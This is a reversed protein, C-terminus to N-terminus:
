KYDRIYQHTCSDQGCASPKKKKKKPTPKDLGHKKIFEADKKREEMEKQIGRQVKGPDRM